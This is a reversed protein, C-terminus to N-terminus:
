GLGGINVTVQSVSSSTGAPLAGTPVAPTVPGLGTAYLIVLEGPQAPSQTTVASGDVHTIAGPGKGDATYTFIGPAVTALTATTPTSPRGAVSVVVQAPGGTLESPIQVGLQTPTAYFIPVATGGVTVQAGAMSTNLKGNSGFTPNCTPPLCSSGDTLSSGFIAAIAGPAVASGDSGLTYSANNVIGGTNIQPGSQVNIILNDLRVDGEGFQDFQFSNRVAVGFQMVGGSFSPNVATNVNGTNLNGTNFDFLGFDSARLGPASAKLFTGALGPLPVVAMYYMGNQLILLRITNTTDLRCSSCGTFASYKEVSFDISQITGQTAPNYTFSPRPLGVMSNGVGAPLTYLIQLAQGPNGGMQTQGVSIGISPSTKWTVMSYDSLNFTSDTFTVGGRLSAAALFVLCLGRWNGGVVVARLLKFSVDFTM